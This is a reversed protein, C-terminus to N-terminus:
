LVMILWGVVALIWELKKHLCKLQGNRPLIGIRSIAMNAVVLVARFARQAVYFHYM